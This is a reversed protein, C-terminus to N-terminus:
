KHLYFLGREVQQECDRFAESLAELLDSAMVTNEHLAGRAIDGALGHLYVAAAVQLDRLFKHHLQPEGLVEPAWGSGIEHRALAAAILGSLVEGAGAKALEPGGTLNIWTEGSVGAIARCRGELVVCAGSARALLRAARTRDALIADVPLETLRAAVSPPAVLVRYPAAGAPPRLDDWKEAFAALGEGDLILPLRCRRAFQRVFTASAPDGSRGAGLVVADTGALLVELQDDTLPGLSGGDAEELGHTELAAGHGAIVAELSKPCAITVRGAGAHLAALGALAAAGAKGRSGAVVLVRGFQGPEADPARPPFAIGVEQGTVVALTAGEAVFAPQAGIESVAIPGASLNGFVHAPKPAILAIIGQAFVMNGGSAPVPDLCDPDVGSPLDVSVVIGAADNIAAITRKALDGLPPRFGTGMVADIVLDAGFAARCHDSALDDARAIWIPALSPPSGSEPGPHLQDERGALVIVAVTEAMGTLVEAAVLGAAGNNGTGCVVSVSGFEFHAACFQAIAYGARRLRGQPDASSGGAAEASECGNLIRM